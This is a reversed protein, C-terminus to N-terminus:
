LPKLSSWSVGATLLAIRLQVYDIDSSASSATLHEMIPKLKGQMLVEAEVSHLAENLWEQATAIAFIEPNVLREDIAKSVEFSVIKPDKKFRAALEEVSVSKKSRVFKAVAPTSLKDLAGDPKDEVLSVVAELGYLEVMANLLELTLYVDATARHLNGRPFVDYMQAIVKLSGAQSKAGSLKLHLRRVDFTREFKEFPKGYLANMELVAPNDFTGNNFGCVWCEGEGMRKFLAAYKLGWTEKDNVMKQTIGTLELARTGIRQEPNILSSMEVGTGTPAVVFCCVETIGFNAHGRLATTELDYVAIHRSLRKALDAVANFQPEDTM